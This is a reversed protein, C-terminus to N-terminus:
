PIADLLAEVTDMHEGAREVAVLSALILDWDGEDVGETMLVVMTEREFVAEML